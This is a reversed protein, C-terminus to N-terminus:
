CVDLYDYVYRGTDPSFDITSVIYSGQLLDQMIVNEVQYSALEQLRKIGFETM